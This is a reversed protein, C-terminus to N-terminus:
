GRTGASGLTIVRPYAVGDVVVFVQVRRLLPGSDVSADATWLLQATATRGDLTLETSGLGRLGSGDLPTLVVRTPPRSHGGLFAKLEARDDVWLEVPVEVLNTRGSRPGRHGLLRVSVAPAGACLSAALPALAGGVETSCDYPSLTTVVDRTEGPALPTEASGVRIAGTPPLSQPGAGANVLTLRVRAAPLSSGAPAGLAGPAGGDEGDPVLRANADIVEVGTVSVEGGSAADAPSDRPVVLWAGVLSAGVLTVCGAVLAARPIRRPGEGGAALEEPEGLLV